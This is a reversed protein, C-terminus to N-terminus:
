TGRSYTRFRRGVLRVESYFAVSDLGRSVEKFGYSSLTLLFADWGSVEVFFPLIANIFSEIKHIRWIKGEPLWSVLHEISTSSLISRLKPLFSAKPGVDQLAFPQSAAWSGEYISLLDINM